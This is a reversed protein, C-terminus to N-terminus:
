PVVDAHVSAVSWTDSAWSFHAAVTTGNTLLAAKSFTTSPATSFTEWHKLFVQEGKLTASM